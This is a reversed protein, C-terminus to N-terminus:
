IFCFDKVLNVLSLENKKIYAYKVERLTQTSKKSEKAKKGRIKANNKESKRRRKAREANDIKM